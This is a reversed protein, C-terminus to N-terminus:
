IKKIEVSCHGGQQLRNTKMKVDCNNCRPAVCLRFGEIFKDQPNVGAYLDRHCRHIQGDPAFLMESSKCLCSEIDGKMYEPYKYTGHREDLFEKMRWDIKYRRCMAAMLVNREAMWPHDLGWIGVSYGKDQLKEVKQVLEAGISNYHYSFRISAYPAKREFMAPTTLFIFKDVDFDGNTLIDMKKGARHLQYMLEYIAEYEFPEGGQLTIPLDERTAVPGLIRMWEVFTIEKRPAFAGHRNICYSCGMRCKFTLFVGIYNLQQTM